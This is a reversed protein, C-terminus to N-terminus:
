GGSLAQMVVVEGNASVPRALAQPGRQLVGDVFVAIHKRVRGQEDVVYSRLRPHDDFVANLVTAVDDGEYPARDIRAIDRLHTTLSVIAM